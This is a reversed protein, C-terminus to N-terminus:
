PIIEDMYKEIGLRDFLEGLREGDLSEKRYYDITKELISFLQEESILEIIKIGHRPKRGMSGGVFITYGIKEARLVDKRCAAICAGCLVCKERDIRVKEEKI